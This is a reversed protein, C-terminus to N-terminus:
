AGRGHGRRVRGRRLRATAPPRSGVGASRVRRGGAASGAPAALAVTAAGTGILAAVLIASGTSPDAVTSWTVLATSPVLPPPPCGRRTRRAPAGFTMRAAVAAMGALLAGLVVVGPSAHLPLRFTSLDARAARLDVRLTRLTTATPVGDRTAGPM